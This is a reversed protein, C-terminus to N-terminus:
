TLTVLIKMPNHHLSASLQFTIKMWDWIHLTKMVRFLCLQTMTIITVDGRIQLAMIVATTLQLIMKGGNPSNNPGTEVDCTEGFTYGTPVIYKLPNNVAYSYRNFSATLLPNQIIPDPSIFRGLEQDYVRGNMHILGVEEIEEHGTYGRNTITKLQVSTTSDEQWIVKRQKGWVNYSR